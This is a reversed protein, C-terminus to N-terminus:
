GIALSNVTFQISGGTVGVGHGYFCDNGFTLGVGLPRQLAAQFQAPYATATQGSVANWLSLDSLAATITFTGPGLTVPLRAWWRGYDTNWDHLIFVRTEPTDPSCGPEASFWMPSGSTNTITFAAVISGTLTRPVSTNWLYNQTEAVDSLTFSVGISTSVLPQDGPLDQWVNRTGRDDVGSPMVSSRGCGVASVLLLAVILKTPM